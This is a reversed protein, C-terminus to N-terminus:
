PDGDDKGPTLLHEDAPASWKAVAAKVITHVALFTGLIFGISFFLSVSTALPGFPGMQSIKIEKADIGADSLKRLVESQPLDSEIKVTSKIHMLRPMTATWATFLAVYVALSILRTTWLRLM